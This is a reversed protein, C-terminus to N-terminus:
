SPTTTAVDSDLQAAAFRIKLQPRSGTEIVVVAAPAAPALEATTVPNGDCDVLRETARDVEVLCSPGRDARYAFHLSWGEVDLAAPDHDLVLAQEGATGRLDPLLLPGYQAIRQVTHDVRGLTVETDGIRIGEENDSIAAAILWTVGFLLAFFGIGAAVPV